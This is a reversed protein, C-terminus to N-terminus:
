SAPVVKEILYGERVGYKCVEMSSAGLRNMLVNILIAGCVITHLREPVTQAALHSFLSKNTLSLRILSSIEEDTFRRSDIGDGFAASVMKAAARASGGIGYLVPSNYISLNKVTDLRANFDDSIEEAERKTPMLNDVFNAYSSVCGQGISINHSDKCGKVVTLESSGGGIDILTGCPIEMNCTAGIFGLHGEMKASLLHIPVKVAREIQKIASESNKCNRLVATAFIHVSECNFYGIRRLHENLVQITKKIGASTFIGDKVYSSLGAIKKQNILSRFNKKTLPPIFGGDVEYIVLRVSNSGLDIVAYNSM